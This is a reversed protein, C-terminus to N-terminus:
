TIIMIQASSQGSLSSTLISKDSYKEKEIKKLETEKKQHKTITLIDLPYIINADFVRKNLFFEKMSLLENAQTDLRSLVNATENNVGFLFNIQAGFEELVLRQRLIRNSWVYTDNYTLNKHDM